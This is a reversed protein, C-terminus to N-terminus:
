WSKLLSTKRYIKRTSERFSKRSFYYRRIYTLQICGSFLNSGKGLASSFYILRNVSNFGLAWHDPNYGVEVRQFASPYVEIKRKAFYRIKENGM